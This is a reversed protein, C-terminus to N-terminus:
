YDELFSVTQTSSAVVGYIAAKSNVALAAGPIGKLLTGTTTTVGSGGIFVDTTGSNVILADMRATRAAIILTATNAVSVQGTNINQGGGSKFVQRQVGGGQDETEVTTANPPTSPDTDQFTVNNAM